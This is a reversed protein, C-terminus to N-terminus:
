LLPLFIRIISRFIKRIFNDKLEYSEILISKDLTDLIDEKIDLLIPDNYIWVGNEFHHVLSRYDLNMTGVLAVKNDCLYTKAHIFGLSYEYIKVGVKILRLYHSKTIKYIMKKDPIHPTIIRIDVGRVAANEITELLENDVILYPTTIYVYDQAQNLMNMIVTKSVRRNYMPRPGDGFPVCYGQGEEKYDKFYSDTQEIPKKINLNYDILFLRVFERVSDGSLRLGVDKWHGFRVKKNIYEDAINAGGTYAIVGDIVTIKRHSRNNFENNAQGKLKSFLVADIGIKRLKKFYNGPLTTMCGIDDYILKVIVNESVKQKLIELINDWLYGDEIIFYEMFIYDKASKLDEILSLFMDEGLRFYKLKTDKYIHAQSLKKISLAQSYMLKDLDCLENSVSEDNYDIGISYSNRLRKVQKKDLKRSYFMLYAMFGVIPVLIVFLIWPIKYDPNDNSNIIALLTFIQTLLILIYVYKCITALFILIAIVSLFEIVILLASFIYRFPIYTVEKEIVKNGKKYKYKRKM